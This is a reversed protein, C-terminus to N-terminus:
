ALKTLKMSLDWLKSQKAQDRAEESAAHKALQHKGPPYSDYWGGSLGQVDPDVALYALGSGGFENTEAFGSLQSIQNFINAFVVNQNRFFGNPDAILGPSFANVTIGKSGFRKAAEAMFLMNCLKSDKYAKDPDFEGGDVMQFNASSLGSLDGLSAPPGVNGGGSLPDHVPSATVVIRPKSASALVPLCLNALLFHGLHNTGVTVEFGDATRKVFESGKETANLSLGANLVLTDVVEKSAQLKAVFDRVSSLDALDCKYGVASGPRPSGKAADLCAKVAKQAKEETRCALIVRHGNAALLKAGALGVGSNAGTIVVTRPAATALQSVLRSQPLALEIEYKAEAAEAPSSAALSFAAPAAALLGLSLERRQLTPVSEEEALAARQLRTRRTQRRQQSVAAAVLLGAGAATLREAASNFNRGNRRSWVALPSPTAQEAETHLLVGSGRGVQPLRVSFTQAMASAALM